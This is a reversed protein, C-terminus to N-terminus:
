EGEEVYGPSLVTLPRPLDSWAVKQGFRSWEKPKEDDPWKDPVAIRVSPEGDGACIVLAGIGEPEEVEPELLSRLAAQLHEVEEPECRADGYEACISVALRKIQARDEPDIVLLPRIPTVIGSADSSWTYSSKENQEGWYAWGMNSPVGSRLAVVRNAWCGAEVLAIDSPKWNHTM